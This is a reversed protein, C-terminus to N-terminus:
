KPGDALALLAKRLLDVCKSHSGRFVLYNLPVPTNGGGISIRLIGQEDDPLHRIYIGHRQWEELILEGEKGGTIESGKAARIKEARATLLDMFEKSLQGQKGEHEYDNHSNM